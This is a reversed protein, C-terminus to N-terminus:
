LESPACTMTNIKDQESVVTVTEPNNFCQPYVDISHEGERCSRSHISSTTENAYVTLQLERRLFPSFIIAHM